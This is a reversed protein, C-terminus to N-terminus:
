ELKSLLTKVKKAKIKQSEWRDNYNGRLLLDGNTDWGKYEIDDYREFEPDIINRIDLWNEAPKLTMPNSFDLLLVSYPVAWYCGNVLLINNFPNYEAGTWIFTEEKKETNNKPYSQSPIYHLEKRSEIEFVSYGYLDIRFILYHNGNSHCFLEIFDGDDDINQWGYIKEGRSDFLENHTASLNLGGVNGEYICCKVTYGFNLSYQETRKFYTDSFIGSLSKRYESYQMTRYINMFSTLNYCKGM